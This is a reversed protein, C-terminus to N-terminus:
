EGRQRVKNIYGISPEAWSTAQWHGSAFVENWSTSELWRIERDVMKPLWLFGKSVRKETQM